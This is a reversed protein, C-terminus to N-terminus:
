FQGGARHPKRAHDVRTLSRAAMVVLVIALLLLLGCLVSLHWRGDALGQAALLALATLTVALMFATPLLLFRNDRGQRALWVTASLLALAALLQNAAGFIPWLAAFHGSFLLAAAFAVTLGGAVRREGLWAVHQFADCAALEQLTFRGLRAATDLMTLAFASVALGVFTVGLGLPIGLSALFGAIGQAYMAFPGATALLDGYRQQSLVGVAVVATVALFSEMLMAGYGIRKAHAESKLLKSTTGSAILSHFGSIAGCAVTVFLMPFLHGLPAAYTTTFAPLSLDPAAIIVGVLASALLAYLLISNLYDRPQQLLWLPTVGAGVVYALLLLKWEAQDLPLPMFYGLGLAALILTVGLVSCSIIDCRAARVIGGFALALLMLLAAATAVGPLAAFTGALIDVFAALLLVLALWAFILFLVRGGHGVQDGIISGISKGDHRVSAVLSAFDHVAGAFIAGILVWLFAPLWGFAAAAIPGVIPAAGAISAFHHGLLVFSHTPIFDAGDRKTHAPTPRMPDVGLRGAVYSGYTFYAVLLAGIAALGLLAGSM